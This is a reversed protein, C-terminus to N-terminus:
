LVIADSPVYYTISAAESMRHKVIMGKASAFEYYRKMHAPAQRLRLLADNRVGPSDSVSLGFLATGPQKLSMPVASQLVSQYMENMDSITADTRSM